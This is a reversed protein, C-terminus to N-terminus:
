GRPPQVPSTLSLFVQLLVAVRRGVLVGLTGTVRDTRIGTDKAQDPPACPLIFDEWVEPDLLMSRIAGQPLLDVCPRLSLLSTPGEALEGCLSSSRVGRCLVGHVRAPVGLVLARLTLGSSSGRRTTVNSSTLGVLSQPGDRRVLWKWEQSREPSECSIPDRRASSCPWLCSGGQGRVAATVM